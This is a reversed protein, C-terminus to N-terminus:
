TEFKGNPQLSWGCRCGYRVSGDPREAAFVFFGHLEGGREHFGFRARTRTVWLSDRICMESGM